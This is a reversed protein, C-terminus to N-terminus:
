PVRLVQAFSIPYLSATFSRSSVSLSSFFVSLARLWSASDSTLWCEWVACAAYLASTGRKAPPGHVRPRKTTGHFVWAIASAPSGRPPTPLRGQAFWAMLRSQRTVINLRAHRKEEGGSAACLFPQCSSDNRIDSCSRSKGTENQMVSYGLPSTVACVRPPGGLGRKGGTM